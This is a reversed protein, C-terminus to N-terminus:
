GDRLGRSGHVGSDELISLLLFLVVIIPLFSLVSGVGAFIGDIVLSHVVPNLGFSTLAADVMDTFAGIGMELLDSLRQGVADFTIWFVLVMIGVFVPIATYKGTLIRDAAVSRLHERSEHPKVVSASCVQEIFSFRMDALAAMRDAGAEEEMQSIIHEVADLENQELALAEIVLRDGEILKTM